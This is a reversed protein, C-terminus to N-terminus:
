FEIAFRQYKLSATNSAVVFLSKVIQFTFPYTYLTDFYTLIPQFLPPDLNIEFSSEYFKKLILFFRWDLKKGWNKGM